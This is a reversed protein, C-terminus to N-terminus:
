EHTLWNNNKKKKASSKAKSPLSYLQQKGDKLHAMMKINEALEPHIEPPGSGGEGIGFVKLLKPDCHDKPIPAGVALLNSLQVSNLKHVNVNPLQFWGPAEASIATDSRKKKKVNFGQDNANMGLAAAQEANYVGLDATSKSVVNDYLEKTTLFRDEETRVAGFAGPGHSYSLYSPQSQSQRRTEGRFVVRGVNSANRNWCNRDNKEVMRSPLLQNVPVGAFTNISPKLMKSSKSCGLGILTGYSSKLADAYEVGQSLSLTTRYYEQQAQERERYPKVEGPRIKSDKKGAVPLRSDNVYNPHYIPKTQFDDGYKTRWFEPSDRPPDFLVAKNAEVYEPM